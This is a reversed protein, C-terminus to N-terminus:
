DHDKDKWGRPHFIGDPRERPIHVVTGRPIKKGTGKYKKALQPNAEAFEEISVHFHKALTDFTRGGSKLKYIVSKDDESHNKKHRDIDPTSPPINQVYTQNIFPPVLSSQDTGTTDTAQSGSNKRMYYILGLVLLGVGAVIVWMPVGGVKRQFFNTDVKKEQPETM